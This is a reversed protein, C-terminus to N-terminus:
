LADGDLDDPVPPLVTIQTLLTEIEDDLADRRVEVKAPADLGFLRARREMIRLVALCASESGSVARQWLGMQMRDLRAGEIMRLEEVEAAQNRALARMVTRYATSRNCDLAAAIDDYTAGAKRMEVARTERQATTAKDPNRGNGNSM